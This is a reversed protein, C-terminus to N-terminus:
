GCATFDCLGRGLSSRTDVRQIRAGPVLCYDIRTFLPLTAYAFIDM